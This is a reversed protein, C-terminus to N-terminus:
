VTVVCFSPPTPPEEPFFKPPPPPPPAPPGFPAPDVALLAVVVAPVFPPAASPEVTAPPEPALAPLFEVPLGPLEPVSNSADCPHPEPPPPEPASVTFSVEVLVPPSPANYPPPPAPQPYQRPAPLLKSAPAPLSPRITM